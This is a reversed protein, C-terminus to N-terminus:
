KLRPPTSSVIELLLRLFGADWILIQDIQIERITDYVLSGGLQDPTSFISRMWKFDLLPNQM